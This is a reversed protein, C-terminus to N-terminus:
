SVAERAADLALSVTAADFPKLFDSVLRLRRAKALMTAMPLYEPYGSFLILPLRCEEEGLRSVLEIGDVDPLVVDLAIIDPRVERRVREFERASLAVSPDFGRMRAVRAFYAAVEPDDDVILM